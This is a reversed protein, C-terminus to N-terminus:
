GFTLGEDRRDGKGSKILAVEDDTLPGYGEDLFNRYDGHGSTLLESKDLSGTNWQAFFLAIYVNRRFGPIVTAWEPKTRIIHAVNGHKELNVNGAWDYYGLEVGRLYSHYDGVDAFGLEKAHVKEYEKDEKAKQRKLLHLKWHLANLEQQLQKIQEGITSM